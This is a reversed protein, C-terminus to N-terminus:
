GNIKNEDCIQKIISYVWVTVTKTDKLIKQHMKPEIKSAITNIISQTLHNKGISKLAQVILSSEAYKFGIEKLAIKKFELILATDFIKYSKNPGDSLYIYRGPIQTSLGLLNLATEGSPEIRWKFKRAIAYAVQEINPSLAHYTLMFAYEVPENVGLEKPIFKSYKPYYYIGRCVRKIKNQKTLNSLAKDINNIEFKEIFDTTSFVWGNGHARIISFIKYEISKM